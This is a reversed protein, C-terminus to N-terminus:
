LMDSQHMSGEIELANKVVWKRGDEKAKLIYQPLLDSKITFLAHLVAIRQYEQQEGYREREWAIKCFTETEKSGMRALAMLARRNVYEEDEQVYRLLLVEALSHPEREPLHIALQWKADHEGSILAKEALFLLLPTHKSVMDVLIESENDRAIIYLIENVQEDDWQMFDTQALFRKFYTIIKSWEGYWTEWEGIKQEQLDAWKHFKKIEIFLEHM